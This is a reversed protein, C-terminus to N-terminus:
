QDDEENTIPKIVTFTLAGDAPFFQVIGNKYVKIDFSASGTSWADTDSTLILTKETENPTVQLQYYNTKIKVESYIEDYPYLSDWEEETFEVVVRFTSGQKLIM